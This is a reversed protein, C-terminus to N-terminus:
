LLSVNHFVREGFFFFYFGEPFLTYSFLQMTGKDGVCLCVCMYVINVCVSRVVGLLIALGGTHIMTQPSLPQPTTRAVWM